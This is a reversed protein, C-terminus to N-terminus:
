SMGTEVDNMYNGVLSLPAVDLITLVPGSICPVWFSSEDKKFSGAQSSLNCESRGESPSINEFAATQNNTSCVEHATHRSSEPTYQTPFFKPVDDPVSSCLYPTYFCISPYSASKWALVENRKHLMESILKQVQSAVHLRSSDFVCLSFVQILLQIHEHILCHLQGIQHPTFGNIYGDEVPSSLSSSMTEPMWSRRDQISFSSIPGNPLVPLLPRLPRNTQALLKKKCKTSTKKCSNQRTEPRRGGIDYDEGSKDRRNEDVDSELAEELEIEFDADNDEDDDAIENEQTSQGGDDAGHLVAALFKRYEEEDDVNQLDDEDDTEQLFTELEDLTFSALSYRARTRKCIADEDDLVIMPKQSDISNGMEEAMVDSVSIGNSSYNGKEQVIEGVTPSLLSSVRKKLNRTATKLFEKECPGESSVTTQMVVEEEGHESDGACNLVECSLKSSNVGVTGIVNRGSDVADGDLGEIESSLSSSAEPSLTEKLFPNFDVDEDEDEEEEENPKMSSEHCESLNTATPLANHNSLCGVQTSQENPCSFM